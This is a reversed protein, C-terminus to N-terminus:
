DMYPYYAYSGFHAVLPYDRGTSDKYAWWCGGSIKDSYHLEVIKGKPNAEIRIPMDNYHNHQPDFVCLAEQILIEKDSVGIITYPNKVDYMYGSTRGEQRLYLEEGVKLETDSM